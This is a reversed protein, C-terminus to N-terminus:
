ILIEYINYNSVRIGTMINYKNLRYTLITVANIKELNLLYKM